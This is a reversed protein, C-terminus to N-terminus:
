AFHDNWTREILDKNASLVGQLERLVRADFGDSEALYITPRLWFKAEGDASRVHIHMPERPKGYGSGGRANPSDQMSQSGPAPALALCRQCLYPRM